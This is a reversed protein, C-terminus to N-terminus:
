KKKLQIIALCIIAIAIMSMGKATNLKNIVCLVLVSIGMALSIASLIIELISKNM